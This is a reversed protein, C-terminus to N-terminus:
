LLTQGDCAEEHQNFDNATDDTSGDCYEGVRGVKERVVRGLHEGDHGDLDTLLGAVLELGLAVV